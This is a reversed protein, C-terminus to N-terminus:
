NGQTNHLHTRSVNSLLFDDEIQISINGEVAEFDDECPEM